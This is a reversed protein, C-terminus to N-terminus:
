FGPREYFDVDAGDFPKVEPQNAQAYALRIVEALSQVIEIRIDEDIDSFGQKIGRRDQLNAMVGRAATHAWDVALGIPNDYPFMRGHDLDRGASM